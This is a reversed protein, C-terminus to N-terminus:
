APYNLRHQIKTAVVRLQNVLDPPDLVQVRNPDGPTREVILQSLYGDLNEVIGDRQMALYNDILVAKVDDPDAIAQGAGVASSDDVLKHRPFASTIAAQQSRAIYMLTAMTNFDLFADDAQGASDTQYTTIVRELQVANTRTTTLTAIGDFLLTNRESQDFRDGSIATAGKIGELVLTQLPRAPDIDISPKIKGMAAATVQYTAAAPFDIGFVTHHPSNRGNGFTGLAAVGDQKSTFAHGYLLTDWQWRGGVDSLVGDIVDMEATEPWPHGIYDFELDGLLAGLATITPNTAGAAGVAAVATLGAPVKQGGALGLYNLRVDIGNGVTGSHKATLTTISTAGAATVPMDSAATVDAACATAVDAALDGSTITTEVLTGNIYLSIKGDETATGSFTVTYTADTGVADAFALGYLEGFPDNDRYAAVMEAMSSGEGWYDVAQSATFVQQLTEAAVTGTSLMQGIILAPRAEVVPSGAASGDFEVFYFPTRLAGAAPINEFSIAM